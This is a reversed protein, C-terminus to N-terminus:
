CRIGVARGLVGCKYPPNKVSVACFAFVPALNAPTSDPKASKKNAMRAICCLFFLELFQQSTFSGKTFIDAVQKKTNIYKISVGPDERIVNFLWDLDIRHTRTVHRMKNTRGKLIMKIAADNDELCVLRANSTLPPLTPPVHDIRKVMDEFTYTGDDM